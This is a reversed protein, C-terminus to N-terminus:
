PVPDRSGRCKSDRLRREMAGAGGEPRGLGESGGGFPAGDEDWELAHGYLHRFRHRFRLFVELRKALDKDLLPPRVGPVEEQLHRWLRRYWDAGQPMGGELWVVVREFIREIGQYFDHLLKGGTYVGIFEPETPTHAQLERIETVLRRLDEFEDEVQQRLAALPSEPM